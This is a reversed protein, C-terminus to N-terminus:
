VIMFKLLGRDLIVTGMLDLVTAILEFVFVESVIEAKM